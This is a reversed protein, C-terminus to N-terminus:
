DPAAPHPTREPTRIEGGLQQAVELDNSEFWSEAVKDGSLRFIMIGTEQVRQGAGPLDLYGGRYTSRVVYRVVIRDDSAILDQLDPQQDAFAAPYWRLWEAFEARDGAGGPGHCVYDDTALESLRDVDGTRCMEFWADAIETPRMFSKTHRVPREHCAHSKPREPTIPADSM